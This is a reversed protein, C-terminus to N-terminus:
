LGLQAFMWAVGPAARQEWRPCKACEATSELVRPTPERVCTWPGDWVDMWYPLPMFLSPEAWRCNQATRKTETM